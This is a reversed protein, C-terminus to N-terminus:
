IEPTYEIQEGRGLSIIWNSWYKESPNFAEVKLLNLFVHGAGEM